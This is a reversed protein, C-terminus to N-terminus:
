FWKHLMILCDDSGPTAHGDAHGAPMWTLGAQAHLQLRLRSGVPRVQSVCTRVCGRVRHWERKGEKGDQLPKHMVPWGAGKGVRALLGLPSVRPRVHVVALHAWSHGPALGALKSCGAGVAVVHKLRPQVRLLVAGQQALVSVAAVPLHAEETLRDLEPTDCTPLRPWARTLTLLQKNVAVREPCCACAAWSRGPM